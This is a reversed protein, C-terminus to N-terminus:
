IILIKDIFNAHMLASEDSITILSNIKTNIKRSRELYINTLETASIEKNRILDACKEATLNKPDIM